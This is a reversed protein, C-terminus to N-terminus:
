QHLRLIVERNIVNRKDQANTSASLQRMVRHEAARAFMTETVVVGPVAWTATGFPEATVKVQCTLRAFVIRTDLWVIKEFLPVSSIPPVVTATMEFVRDCALLVGAPEALVSLM